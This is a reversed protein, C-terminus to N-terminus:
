TSVYYIISISMCNDYLNCSVVLMISDVRRVRASLPPAIIYTGLLQQKLLLAVSLNISLNQMFTFEAFSNEHLFLKVEDM